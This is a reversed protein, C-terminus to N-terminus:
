ETELCTRNWLKSARLKTANANTTSPEAIHSHPHRRRLQHAAPLVPLLSRSCSPCSSCCSSRKARTSVYSPRDPRAARGSSSKVSKVRSDGKQGCYWNIPGRRLPIRLNRRVRSTVCARASEEKSFFCNRRFLSVNRAKVRLPHYFTIFIKCM